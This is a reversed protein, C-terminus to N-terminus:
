SEFAGSFAKVFSFSAHNICLAVLRKCDMELLISM